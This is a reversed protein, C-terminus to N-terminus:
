LMSNNPLRRLLWDLRAKGLIMDDAPDNSNSAAAEELDSPIQREGLQNVTGRLRSSLLLALARYFRSSFGVDIQLKTALEQQPISLVFSDSIAKVTASPPRSDIFSMEGVVEASSLRAIEKDTNNAITVSVSLSGKLVMYLADVPKGQQILVTGAVIDKLNGISIMWDVDDDSLEELFFLVNQMENNEKRRTSFKLM